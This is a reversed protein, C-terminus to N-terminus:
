GYIVIESMKSCRECRYHGCCVRSGQGPTSMHHVCSSVYGCGECKDRWQMNKGDDRVVVAGTAGAM